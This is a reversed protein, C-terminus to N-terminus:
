ASVLFIVLSNLSVFFVLSCLAKLISASLFPLKRVALDCVSRFAGPVVLLSEDPCLGQCVKFSIM